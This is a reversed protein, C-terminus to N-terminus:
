ASHKSTGVDSTDIYFDHEFHSVCFPQLISAHGRQLYASERESVESADLLEGLVEM